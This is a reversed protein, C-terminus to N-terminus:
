PAWRLSLMLTHNAADEPKRDVYQLQYGAEAVVADGLGFEFGAFARTEGFGSDPGGSVSNLDFFAENAVVLKVSTEPIPATLRLLYRLRVATEDVDEIFREELRARHAAGLALLPHGFGLQQWARHEEREMPERILHADYGLAASFGHGLPRGIWPRVVVRELDSIDDFFRTQLQLSAEFEAPLAITATGTSWLRADDEVAISLRPALAVLFLVCAATLSRATASPALRLTKM